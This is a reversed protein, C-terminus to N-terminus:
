HTPTAKALKELVYYAEAVWPAGIRDFSHVRFGAEAIESEFEPRTPHGAYDPRRGKLWKLFLRIRGFRHYDFFSVVVFRRTVRNLESLIRVRDSRVRFHHLLRNCLVCDLGGDPLPLQGADGQFWRTRGPDSCQERSLELMELSVDSEIVTAASDLLLQVFRGAGCPVDLITSFRGLCGFIARLARQERRNIARHTSKEFRQAYSKSTDRNKFRNEYGVPLSM